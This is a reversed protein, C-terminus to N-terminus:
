GNSIPKKHGMICIKSFEQKIDKKIKTNKMIIQETIDEELDDDSEEETKQIKIIKFAVLAGHFARNSEVFSNIHVKQKFIPCKIVSKERTYESATFIGEFIENEAKGEQIQKETWNKEFDQKRNQNNNKFKGRNM